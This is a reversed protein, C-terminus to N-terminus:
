EGRLVPAADLRAVRGLPWLSGALTVALALGMVVPLLVLRGTGPIGFVIKGVVYGLGVGALYGVLGGGVAVLVQEAVFLGLIRRRGAGLAKM